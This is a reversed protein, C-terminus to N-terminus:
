NYSGGFNDGFTTSTTDIAPILMAQAQQSLVLALASATAFLQIYRIFSRLIKM